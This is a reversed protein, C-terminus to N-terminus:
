RRMRLVSTTTPSFSKTTRTPRWSMSCRTRRCSQVFAPFARDFLLLFCGRVTRLLSLTLKTCASNYNRFFLFRWLDVYCIIDVVFNSSLNFRKADSSEFNRSLRVNDFLLKKKNTELRLLRLLRKLPLDFLMIEIQCLWVATVLLSFGVSGGSFSEPAAVAVCSFDESGSSSASSSVGGGGCGACHLSPSLM